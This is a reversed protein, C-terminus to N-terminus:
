TRLIPTAVPDITVLAPFKFNVCPDKITFPVSIKSHTYCKGTTYPLKEAKLILEYAHSPM